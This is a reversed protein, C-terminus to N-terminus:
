SVLSAALEAAHANSPAVIVGAARLAAVQRSWGQPDGEAGVVSAIVPKKGDLVKLVTGAPDPHSGFGLVVDLLIIATEPDQAEQLIRRIRLDNDIMPHPRGVTFEEEGL